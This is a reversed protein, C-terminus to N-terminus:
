CADPIPEPPANPDPNPNPTYILDKKVNELNLETPDEGVVIVNLGSWGITGAHDTRLHITIHPNQPDKLYGAEAVRKVVFELFDKVSMSTFGAVGPRRYHAWKEATDEDFTWRRPLYSTTVVRGAPKWLIALEFGTMKNYRAGSDMLKVPCKRTFNFLPDDLINADLDCIKQDPEFEKKKWYSHPQIQHNAYTFQVIADNFMHYYFLRHPRPFCNEAYRKDKFTDTKLIDRWFNWTAMCAFHDTWHLYKLIKVHLENPLSSLNTAM